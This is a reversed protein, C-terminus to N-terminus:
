TKKLLVTKIALDSFGLRSQKILNFSMDYTYPFVNKFCPCFFFGVFFKVLFVVKNSM